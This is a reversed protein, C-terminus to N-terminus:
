QNVKEPYEKSATQFSDATAQDLLIQRGTQQDSKEHVEALQFAKVLRLTEEMNTGVPLGNVSLHKLWQLCNHLSSLVPGSGDSLVGYDWSIQTILDSLLAVNVNAWVAM